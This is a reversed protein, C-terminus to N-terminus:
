SKPNWKLGYHPKSQQNRLINTAWYGVERTIYKNKAIERGKKYEQVIHGSYTKREKKLFRMMKARKKIMKGNTGRETGRGTRTKLNVGSKVEDQTMRSRVRTVDRPVEKGKVRLTVSGWWMNGRQAWTTGPGLQSSVKQTTVRMKM